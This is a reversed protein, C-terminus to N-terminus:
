VEAKMYSFTRICVVYNATTRAVKHRLIDKEFSLRSITAIAFGTVATFTPLIEHLLIKATSLVKNHSHGEIFYQHTEIPLSVQWQVSFQIIWLNANVKLLKSVLTM